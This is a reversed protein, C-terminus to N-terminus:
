CGCETDTFGIPSPRLTMFGFLSTSQRPCSELSRRECRGVVLVWVAVLVWAAALVWAAVTVRHHDVLRAVEMDRHHDEVGAVAMDRPRDALRAAEVMVQPRDAVEMARLREERLHVARPNVPNGRLDATEVPEM